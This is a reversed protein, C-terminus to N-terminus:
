QLGVGGSSGLEDVLSMQTIAILTECRTKLDPAELLAQKEAPGYPSNMALNNVLFPTSSEEIAEWDTELDHVNLFQRFTELLRARDIGPDVEEELDSAFPSFDVEARRYLGDFVLEETVRFRCIGQLTIHMRGDTTEQYAVIRGAGGIQYLPPNSDDGHRPQIMGIMRNSSMADDVMDLYRPEFINLPLFCGPLLLASTLPFLNLTDPLDALSQYEPQYSM